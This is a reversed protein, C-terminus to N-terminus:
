RILFINHFIEQFQQTWSFESTIGFYHHDWQTFYILFLFQLVVWLLSNTYVHTTIYAFQDEPSAYFLRKASNFDKGFFAFSMFSVYVSLCWIQPKSHKCKVLKLSWYIVCHLIVNSECTTPILFNGKLMNIRPCFGQKKPGVM